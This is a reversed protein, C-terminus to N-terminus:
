AQDGQILPQKSAGILWTSGLLHPMAIKLTRPSGSFFFMGQTILVYKVVMERAQGVEHKTTSVAM